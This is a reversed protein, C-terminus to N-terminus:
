LVAEDSGYNEILYANMQYWLEVRRQDKKDKKLPFLGGKGTRGYGREIIKELIEDVESDDMTDFHDDDYYDLGANGVLKWFWESMPMNDPDGDMLSECRYALGIILELMSAEEPYDDIIYEIDLEDCFKERLNKAEFARNDDNPVHPYFM